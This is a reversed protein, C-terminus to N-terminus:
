KSIWSLFRIKCIDLDDCKSNGYEKECEECSYIDLGDLNQEAILEYLESDDLSDIYEYLAKKCKDRNSM